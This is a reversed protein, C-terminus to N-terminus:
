LIGLMRSLMGSPCGSAGVPVGGFGAGAWAFGVFGFGVLSSWAFGVVVRGSDGSGRIYLLLVVSCVLGSETLLLLFVDFLLFLRFVLFFSVM